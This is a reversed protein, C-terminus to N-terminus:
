HNTILRFYHQDKHISTPSQGLGSKEQNRQKAHVVHYKSEQWFVSSFICAVKKLKAQAQKLHTCDVM